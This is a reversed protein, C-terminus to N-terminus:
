LVPLVPSSDMDPDREAANQKLASMAASSSEDMPEPEDESPADIPALIEERFIEIMRRRVKDIIRAKFNEANTQGEGLHRWLQTFSQILHQPTEPKPRSPYVQHEARLRQFNQM